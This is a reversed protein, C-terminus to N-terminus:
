FAFEVPHVSFKPGSNELRWAMTGDVGIERVWVEERRWEPLDVRLRSGPGSQGFIQMRLKARVEDAQKLPQLQSKLSERAAAPDAGEQREDPMRIRTSLKDIEKSHKPALQTSDVTMIARVGDEFAAALLENGDDRLQSARERM